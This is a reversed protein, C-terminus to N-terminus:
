NAFIPAALPAASKGGKEPLGFIGLGTVPSLMFLIWQTPATTTSRNFPGMGCYGTGRTWVWTVAWHIRMMGPPPAALMGEATARMPKGTLEKAL